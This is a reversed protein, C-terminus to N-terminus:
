DPPNCAPLNTEIRPWRWPELLAFSELLSLCLIFAFYELSWASHREDGGFATRWESSEELCHEVNLTQMWHSWHRGEIGENGEISQLSKLVRYVWHQVINLSCEIQIDAVLFADLTKLQFISKFTGKCHNVISQMNLHRSIGPLQFCHCAVLWLYYCAIALLLLCYHAIALLLRPNTVGSSLSKGLKTQQNQPKLRILRKSDM